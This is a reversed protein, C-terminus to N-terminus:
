AGFVSQYIKMAGRKQDPETKQNIRYSLEYELRNMGENWDGNLIMEVIERVRVKRKKYEKWDNYTKM